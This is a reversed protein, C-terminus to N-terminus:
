KQTLITAKFHNKRTEALKKYFLRSCVEEDEYFIRLRCFKHDEKLNMTMNLEGSSNLDCVDTFCEDLEEVVGTERRLVTDERLIKVSKNADNVNLPSGDFKTM